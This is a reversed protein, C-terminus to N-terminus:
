KYKKLLDTFGTIRETKLLNDKRDAAGKLLLVEVGEADRIKFPEAGDKNIIEVNYLRLDKVFRCDMGVNSEMRINELVLGEIPSEPIGWVNIPQEINIGIIDKYRINRFTPTKETVPEPKDSESEYYMDISIGEQINEMIINSALINEVVGGRERSSKIRLGRRTGKFVCNTVTVNRVGGSMESGIGVASRGHAFTCNSIVINECPIGKKRGHENYGSKITICDDGCDVFCNFIRVNNCAEPNIGDTNPSDYPQIISIGSVEINRCYVPHITWSPSNTFNIGSIVINECNYLNIMKPRPFPLPSDAPNDPERVRLIGMSKRIKQNVEHAEWWTKGQGDLKGRGTISVNELDHGTFLSAYVKRDIGEWSGDIVPTNLIDDHFIITAGALVEVEINSRLFLPGSLYSGAPFVIKGGGNEACKDIVSQISATTLTKGDSAIGYDCVNYYPINAHLTSIFLSLLIFFLTKRM